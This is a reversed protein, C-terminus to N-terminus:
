LAVKPIRIKCETKYLIYGTLFGVVYPGIRAWPKDYIDAFGEGSFYFPLM